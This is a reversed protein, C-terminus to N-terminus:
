DVTYCKRNCIEIMIASSSHHGEAPHFLTLGIENIDRNQRQRTEGAKFKNKFSTKCTKQYKWAAKGNIWEFGPWFITGNKDEKNIENKLFTKM